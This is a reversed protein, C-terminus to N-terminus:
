PGGPPKIGGSKRPPPPAVPSAPPATQTAPTVPPAPPSTAMFKSSTIPAPAAPPTSAPPAPPAAQKKQQIREYEEKEKLWMNIVGDRPTFDGSALPVYPIKNGTADFKPSREYAEQELLNQRQIAMWLIEKQEPSGHLNLTKWGRMRAMAIVAAASQQNFTKADSTIKEPSNPTPAHWAIKGGGLLDAEFGTKTKKATDPNAIKILYTYADDDMWDAGLPFGWADGIVEHLKTQRQKRRNTNAAPPPTMPAAPAASGDTIGIM